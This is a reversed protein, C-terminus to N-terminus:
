KGALMDGLKDFSGNWGNEHSDRREKNAFSEQYLTMEIEGGQARFTITILSEHGGDHDWAWTFVLRQSPAVERYVGRVTRIEGSPLHMAIVYAGGPRAEMDKVEASVGRPGIWRAVRSPDTWALFLESAPAPYHRVINLTLGTEGPAAAPSAKPVM